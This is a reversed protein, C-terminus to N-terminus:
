STQVNMGRRGFTSCAQQIQPVLHHTQCPFLLLPARVWKPNLHTPPLLVPSSAVLIIDSFALGRRSSSLCGSCRHMEMLESCDPHSSGMRVDEGLSSAGAMREGACWSLAEGFGPSCCGLLASAVSCPLWLEERPIPGVQAGAMGLSCPSWGWVFMMGQLLCYPRKTWFM